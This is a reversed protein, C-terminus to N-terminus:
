DIKRYDLPTPSWIRHVPIRLYVVRTENYDYRGFHTIPCLNEELISSRQDLNEHVIVCGLPPLAVEALIHDMSGTETNLMASETCFRAESKNNTLYVFFSYQTPLARFHPNLVFRSLEPHSAAGGTSGSLGISVIQKLVNLPRIRFPVYIVQSRGVVDLLGMAQQAWALYDKGYWGGTANNCRGCLSYTGLGQNMRRTPKKGAIRYSADQIFNLSHLLVGRDNYASRPPLHEFTLEDFVGCIKCCGKQRYRGM